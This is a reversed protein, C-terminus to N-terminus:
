DRYLRGYRARRGAEDTKPDKSTNGGGSGVAGGSPPLPENKPANTSGAKVLHPKAKALEALKKALGKKDVTGDDSVVGELYGGRQAATIADEKDHWTIDNVSLFANDLRLVALDEKYKQLDKELAEARETAKTLEDKKADEIEKLKAEADARKKDAASLHQQLRDFEARTIPKEADGGTGGETGTGTGGEGGAGGTPEGDGTTGSDNPDDPAAGMVPWVPRGDLRMYLPLVPEGTKPHLRKLNM